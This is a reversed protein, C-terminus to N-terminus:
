GQFSYNRLNIKLTQIRRRYRPSAPPAPYIATDPPSNMTRIGILSAGGASRYTPDPDRSKAVLSILVNSAQAYKRTNSLAEHTIVYFALGVQHERVGVHKVRRDQRVMGLPGGEEGVQAIDDDVFDVSIAADETRM